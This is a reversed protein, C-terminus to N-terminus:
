VGAARQKGVIGGRDVVVRRGHREEGRGRRLDGASADPRAGREFSLERILLAIRDAAVVGVTKALEDRERVHGKGRGDVVVQGQTSADGYGETQDAFVVGSPLATVEAALGAQLRDGRAERCPELDIVLEGDAHADDALAGLRLQ